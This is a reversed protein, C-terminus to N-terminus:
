IVVLGVKPGMTTAVADVLVDIGAMMMKRGEAGFKVEKAFGRVMSTSVARAGSSSILRSISNMM